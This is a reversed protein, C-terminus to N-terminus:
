KLEWWSWIAMIFPRNHFRTYPVLEFGHELQKYVVPNPLLEGQGISSYAVGNEVIPGLSPTSRGHHLFINTNLKNSLRVMNVNVMKIKKIRNKYNNNNKHGRYNTQNQASGLEKKYSHFTNRTSGDDRHDNYWPRYMGCRLCKFSNKKTLITDRSMIDKHPNYDKQNLNHDTINEHQQQRSRNINTIYYSNLNTNCAKINYLNTMTSHSLGYSFQNQHYFQLDSKELNIIESHDAPLTLRRLQYNCHFHM